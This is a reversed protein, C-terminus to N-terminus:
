ISHSGLFSRQRLCAMGANHVSMLSQQGQMYCSLAQYLLDFDAPLVGLAEEYCQLIEETQAVNKSVSNMQDDPGLPILLAAVEEYYKLARPYLGLNHCAAALNGLVDIRSEVLGSERTAVTLALDFCEIAKSFFGFQAFIRGGSCLSLVQIELKGAPKAQLEFTKTSQLFGSLTPNDRPDEAVANSQAIQLRGKVIDALKHREGFIETILDLAREFREIAMRHQGLIYCANGLLILYKAEGRRDSGQRAAALGREVDKLAEQFSAQAEEFPGRRQRLTKLLDRALVEDERRGLGHFIAVAERLRSVALDEKGLMGLVAALDSLEGARSLVDGIEQSLQLAQEMYSVQQEYHVAEGLMQGLTNHCRGLTALLGSEVKRTDVTPRDIASVIRLGEECYRMAQRVVLERYSPSPGMPLDMDALWALTSREDQLFTSALNLLSQAEFFRDGLEQALPVKAFLYTSQERLPCGTQRRHERM